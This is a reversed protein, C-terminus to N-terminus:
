FSFCDNCCYTIDSRHNGNTHHQKDKCPNDQSNALRPIKRCRYLSRSLEKGFFVPPKCCTKEVDPRGYPCQYCRQGNREDGFSITPFGRKDNNTCQPEHPHAKPNKQILLRVLM